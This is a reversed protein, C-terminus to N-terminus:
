KERGSLANLLKRFADTDEAPIGSADLAERAKAEERAIAGLAKDPIGYRNYIERVAAIKEAPETIDAANALAERAEPNEKATILLYTKKNNLIDGGIPKGFTDPDGYVDLYDDQIQFAIGLHLGFRGLAEVTTEPARAIIAGIRLAGELLVSTKNAIMRIYEELSVDERKEFDMDDAQGEYVGMATNNFERLVDPVLDDPVRTILGTALTLMADGSLIAVNTNWKRHVTPRGRRTDSNDMVDDHLLTFNHFMEIGVAPYAVDEPKVGCAQAAMMLLLPRLRKGGATMAYVVPDYLSRCRDAPIRLASITEEVIKRLTDPTYM